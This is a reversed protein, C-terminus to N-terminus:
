EAGWKIVNRAMALVSETNLAYSIVGQKELLLAMVVQSLGAKTLDKGIQRRNFAKEILFNAQFAADEVVAFASMPSMAGGVRNASAWLGAHGHADVRGLETRELLTRIDARSLSDGISHNHHITVAGDPADFRPAKLANEFEGGFEVLTGNALVAVGHEKGTAKGKNVVDDRARNHMAGLDVPTIDDALAALEESHMPTAGAVPRILPTQLTEAMRELSAAVQAQNLLSWADRSEQAKQAIARRLGETPTAGIDYDWGPDPQAQARAIAADADTMRQRDADIFRGAQRESLSILRCRCRYGCPPRWTSWIPDDHRAVYGDMAAHSPRTRSDNVADYMRYPFDDTSRAQQEARGRAYHSQINTRFITNGTYLGDLLFYGHATSLNYVHGCFDLVRLSDVRDFEIDGPLADFSDGCSDACRLPPNTADDLLRSYTPRAAIRAAQMESITAQRGAETIIHRDEIQDCSVGGSFAGVCEGQGISGTVIEDMLFQSCGANVYPRDCFGCRQSVVILHHCCPCFTLASFDPKTFRLDGPPQRIAAFDGLPLDRAARIVDVNCDSGDGHFDLLRGEIRETVAAKSLTVFVESITSPREHKHSNGAARADNDRRCGILDDGSNLEGAAVWGRRTLMPHNPTATFKRGNNTVVEVIRGQYWRRHGARVVAGSVFNDGPLCEIRHAPLDLRVAGNPDTARKKWEAFSEGSATAASLSDMAAQLQDLKALGAISFAMSRALGQLEGYYVEPLVVQRARAWAIAEDFPLPEM